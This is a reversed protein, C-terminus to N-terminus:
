KKNKKRKRVRAPDRVIKAQIQKGLRNFMKAREAKSLRKAIGQVRKIQGAIINQAATDGNANADSLRAQYTQLNKKNRAVREKFEPGYSHYAMKNYIKKDIEKLHRGESVYGCNITENNPKTLGLIKEVVQKVAEIKSKKPTNEAQSKKAIKQFEEVKTRLERPSVSGKQAKIMEECLTAIEQMAEMVHRKTYKYNLMVKDRQNGKRQKVLEEVIAKRTPLVREQKAGKGKRTGSGYQYSTISIGPIPFPSMTGEVSPCLMEEIRTIISKYKDLIEMYNFNLLWM